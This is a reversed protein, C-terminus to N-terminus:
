SSTRWLCRRSEWSSEASMSESASAGGRGGGLESVCVGEQEGWVGRRGEELKGLDGVGM